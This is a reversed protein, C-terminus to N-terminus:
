AADLNWIVHAYLWRGDAQKRFIDAFKFNAALQQGNVEVVWNGHGAATGLSGNVEVKDFVTEFVKLVPFAELWSKLNARTVKPEGPPAFVVDDTCMAILVDWNRELAAKTWPVITARIAAVDDM